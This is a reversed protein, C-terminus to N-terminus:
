YQPFNVNPNPYYVTECMQSMDTPTMGMNMFNNPTSSNQFSQNFGPMPDNMGSNQSNMFGQQSNFSQNPSQFQNRNDLSRKKYFNESSGNNDIDNNDRKYRKNMRYDNANNKMKFSQKDNLHKYSTVLGADRGNNRSNQENPGEYFLEIYRHGINKKNKEELAQMAMKYNPFEAFAEGTARGNKDAEIMVKVPVYPDFFKHIDEEDTVFPLGRLKIWFRNKSGMNYGGGGMGGGGMGGGMNGGGGMGGGGMGGGGMMSMMNNMLSFCQMNNMNQMNDFRPMFMNNVMCIMYKKEDASMSSSSIMRILKNQNVSFDNDHDERDGSSRMPKISMLPKIKTSAASMFYDLEKLSSGFVEIYRHGMKEKHKKLGSEYSISDKFQVFAETCRGEEDKPVMIGNPIIDLGTFFTEIEETTCKYPLGRLRVVFDDHGAREKYYEYDDSNAEDVEIYRNDIYRKDKKLAEAFDNSNAFEVYAEGSPRGDKSNNFVVGKYGEMIKLGEFFKEIDVYSTSWPLGRLKVIYRETRELDLPIEQTDSM